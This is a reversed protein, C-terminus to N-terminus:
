LNELRKQQRVDNGSFQKLAYSGIIRSAVRPTYRDALEEMNLNTSIVTPKGSLLRTNIINYISAQTFSTAFETGLDDIILVDCELVDELFHGDGNGKFHEKELKHLLNQAPSYIAGLGKGLAAAAIALSLHTKGLGTGGFFLVSQSAPNLDEAYSKAFDFVKTMVAKDAPNQYYDLSFNEFTCENIPMGVSLQEFSLQKAKTLVCGCLKTGLYGTDGCLPCCPVYEHLGVKTKLQELENKLRDSKTKIANLRDTDGSIAVMGMLPGLRMFEADIARLRPEADYCKAKEVEYARRNDQGKKIVENLAKKLIEKNYGM